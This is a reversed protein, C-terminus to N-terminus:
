VIGIRVRLIFKQWNVAGKNTCSPINQGRERVIVREKLFGIDHLMVGYLGNEFDRESMVTEVEHIHRNAM